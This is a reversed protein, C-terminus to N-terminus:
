SIQKEQIGYKQFAGIDKVIDIELIKRDKDVVIYIPYAKVKLLKILDDSIIFPINNENLTDEYIKLLDTQGSKSIVIFKVDKNNSIINNFKPIINKCYECNPSVFILINYIEVSKDIDIAQGDVTISKFTPIIDNVKM